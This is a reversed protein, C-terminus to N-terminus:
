KLALDAILGPALAAAHPEERYGVDGSSSSFFNLFSMTALKALISTDFFHSIDCPPFDGGRESTRARTAAPEPRRRKGREQVLTIPVLGSSDWSKL